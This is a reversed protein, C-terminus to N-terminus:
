NAMKCYFIIFLGFFFLFGKNLFIKPKEFIGAGKHIELNVIKLKKPM